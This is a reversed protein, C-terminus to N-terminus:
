IIFRSGDTMKAKMKPETEAWSSPTIWMRSSPIRSFHRTSSRGALVTHRPLGWHMCYNDRIMKYNLVSGGGPVSAAILGHAIRIQLQQHGDTIGLAVSHGALLALGIATDEECGGGGALMLDAELGEHVLELRVYDDLQGNFDENTIGAIWMNGRRDLGLQIIKRIADATAILEDSINLSLLGKVPVTLLGETIASITKVRRGDSPGDDLCEHENSRSDPLHVVEFLEELGLFKNLHLKYQLGNVKIM